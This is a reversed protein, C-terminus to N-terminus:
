SRDNCSRYNIVEYFLQNSGVPFCMEVGGAINLNKHWNGTVRIVVIGTVWQKVVDPYFTKAVCRKHPAIIVGNYHTVSAGAM